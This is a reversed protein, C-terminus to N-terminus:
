PLDPQMGPPREGLDGYTEYPSLDPQQLGWDRHIGGWEEFPSLGFKGELILDGSQRSFAHACMSM